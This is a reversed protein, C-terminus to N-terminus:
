EQGVVDDFYAIAAIMTEVELEPEEALESLVNGVASSRQGPDCALYCGLAFELAADLGILASELEAEFDEAPPSFTDLGSDYTWNIGPSPDYLSIDLVYDYDGSNAVLYTEAVEPEAVIVNDVTEVSNKIKILAWDATM